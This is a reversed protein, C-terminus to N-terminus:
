SDSCNLEVVPQPENNVFEYIVIKPDKTPMVLRGFSIALAAPMAPLIHIECNIGNDKQIINLLDRCQQNFIIMQAKSKLFLPSPNEIKFEYINFDQVNLNQYKDPSLYDSLSFLILIKNSKSSQIQEIEYKFKSEDKIKKWCFREEPSNDRQAHFVEGPITDSFKYGLYFLLPMPGIGFISLDNVQGASKKKNFLEFMNDIQKKAYEWNNTTYDFSDINIKDWHVSISDPYNPLVANYISEDTISIPQNKIPCCFKLVTTKNRQVDLLLRIRAEHELKMESLLSPPYKSINRGYDISFHCEPCLLIINNPDSELLPSNFNGRPGTRSAGIIHALQGWSLADHTTNNYWLHKNCSRFACRGASEVWLKLKLNPSLQKRKNNM